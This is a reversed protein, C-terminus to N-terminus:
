SSSMSQDETEFAQTVEYFAKPQFPREFTM